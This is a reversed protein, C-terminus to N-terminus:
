EGFISQKIRRLLSIKGLPIHLIEASRDSTKLVLTSSGEKKELAQAIGLIRQMKGGAGPWCVELLSGAEVAQKAIMSKGSYDLGRAELKEYRLSAGALQTECLVIRRDIRAALEDREAKTLQMKGLIMRFKEQISAGDAASAASGASVASEASVADRAYSHFGSNGTSVPIGSVEFHPFPNRTFTRAGSFHEGKGQDAPPQAIIDVGAKGLAKAADSRKGSALLYVGPALTRLIMSAVPEAEALYRREEALTLVVGQHLSVGAYRKEWERLTWGLSPDIRHLSLRDLLKVMDEAEIGQNFGRMVSDRTLEFCVLDGDRNHLGSGEPQQVSGAPAKVSCFAGLKIADAFSIEPYIIFSFVSNMAIFPAPEADSGSNSNVLDPQLDAGKGVHWADGERELFGSMEMAALLPEFPVHFASDLFFINGRVGEDGCLLETLRRLTVEPYKRGSELFFVFRHIFLAAERLRNRFSLGPHPLDEAGTENYAVEA